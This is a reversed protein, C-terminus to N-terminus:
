LLVIKVGNCMNNQKNKILKRKTKHACLEQKLYVVLKLDYIRLLLIRNKQIFLLLQLPSSIKIFLIKHLNSGFHKNCCNIKPQNLSKQNRQLCLQYNTYQIKLFYFPMLIQLTVDNIDLLMTKPILVEVEVTKVISWNENQLDQAQNQIQNPNFSM